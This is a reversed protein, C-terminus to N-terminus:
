RSINSKSRKSVLFTKVCFQHCLSYEERKLVENTSNMLKDIPAKTSPLLLLAEQFMSAQTINALGRACSCAPPQLQGVCLGTLSFYVPIGSHM